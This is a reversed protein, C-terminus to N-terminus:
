FAFVLGLSPGHLLLDGRHQLQTPGAATLNIDNSFNQTALAVDVLWFTSYGLRLTMHQSVQHNFHLQLEGLFSSHDGGDTGDFAGTLAGANNTRTFSSRVQIDNSFIGGKGEVDVWTRPLVLFQSLFGIQVGYMENNTTLNVTNVTGGAPLNSQTQYTLRDDLTMYRVGLLVTTEARNRFM